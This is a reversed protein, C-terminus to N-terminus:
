LVAGHIALITPVHEGEADWVGGALDGGAIPVRLERRERTM